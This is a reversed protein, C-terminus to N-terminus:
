GNRRKIQRRMHLWLGAGLSLSVLGTPGPEPVITFQNSVSGIAASGATGGDAVIDTLVYVTGPSPTAVSTSLLADIGIDFVIATQPGASCLDAVFASPCLEQVATAAGDPAVTTGTMGLLANFLPAGLIGEVSYGFRTQLLQGAGATVNVGFNLGPTLSSGFPDVTVSNAPVETASGVPGANFFDFFRATGVRCGDAGLNIYGQLDGAMCDVTAARSVPPLLAAATLLVWVKM